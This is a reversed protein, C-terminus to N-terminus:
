MRKELAVSHSVSYNEPILKRITKPYTYEWGCWMVCSKSLISLSLRRAEKNCWLVWLKVAEVLLTCFGNVKFVHILFEISPFDM